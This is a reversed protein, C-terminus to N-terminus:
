RFLSNWGNFRRLWTSVDSGNCTPKLSIARKPAETYEQVTDNNEITIVQQENQKPTEEKTAPKEETTGCAALVLLMATIWLLKLKKM